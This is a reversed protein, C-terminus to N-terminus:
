AHSSACPTRGMYLVSILVRLLESSRECVPLDSGCYHELEAGAVSGLIMRADFSHGQSRYVWGAFLRGPRALEAPDKVHKHFSKRM